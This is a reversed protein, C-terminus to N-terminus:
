AYKESRSSKQKGQGNKSALEKVAGKMACTANFTAGPEVSLRGVEVEGDVIASSKLALMNELILQGSFQGEIDANASKLTGNIVGTKGIVVKGPTQITGNITGEVRFDGEGIVDGTIITGKAISNQQLSTDAAM